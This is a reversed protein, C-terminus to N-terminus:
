DGNRGRKRKLRAETKALQEQQGDYTTMARSQAIAICTSCYYLTVKRGGKKGPTFTISVPEMRGIEFIKKCRGACQARTSRRAAACDPCTGKRDQGWANLDTGCVKCPRRKNPKYPM